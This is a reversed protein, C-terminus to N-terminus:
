VPMKRFILNPKEEIVYFFFFPWMNKKKTKLQWKQEKEIANLQVFYFEGWFIATILCQQLSWLTEKEEEQWQLKSNIPKM